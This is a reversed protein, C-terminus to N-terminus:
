IDVEYRKLTVYAMLMAKQQKTLNSKAAAPLANNIAVANDELYQDISNVAAKLDPKSVSIEERSNSLLQAIQQRISIRDVDPLVAM